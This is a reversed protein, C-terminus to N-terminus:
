QGCILQIAAIEDLDQQHYYAGKGGQYSTGPAMTLAQKAALLKGGVALWFAYNRYNSHAKLAEKAAEIEHDVDIGGIKIFAWVKWRGSQRDEYSVLLYKETLQAGGKSQVTARLLRKYGIIGPADTAFMGEFLKEQELLVPLEDLNATWSSEAVAQKGEPLEFIKLAALFDDANKAADKNTDARCVTAFALILLGSLSRLNGIKWNM